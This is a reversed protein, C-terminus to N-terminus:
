QDEILMAPAYADLKNQLYRLKYCIKYSVKYEFDDNNKTFKVVKLDTLKIQDGDINKSVNINMEEALAKLDFFNDYSMENVTFSNGSKKAKRIVNVYQDPVYIPGSKREKKVCKEILSHATDGENQTHGRILFKHTISNIKLKTVAFYYM